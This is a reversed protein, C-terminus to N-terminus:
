QPLGNEDYGLIENDTLHRNVTPLAAMQEHFKALKVRLAAYAEEREETTSPARSEGSQQRVSDILAIAHRNASRHNAQADQRLWRHLDDPIDRILLNAM